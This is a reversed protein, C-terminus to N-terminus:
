DNLLIFIVKYKRSILEIGLNSSLCVVLENQSAFYSDLDSVSYNNGLNENFFEIEKKRDIKKDKRNSRM